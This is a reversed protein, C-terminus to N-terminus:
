EIILKNRYNVPGTVEIFYVGKSLSELNIHHEPGTVRDEVKCVKGTIDMVVLRYNTNNPNPFSITILGSSPNPTVLCTKWDKRYKGVSTLDQCLIYSDARLSDVCWSYEKSVAVLTVDYIGTDSYTYSIPSEGSTVSNGDGFDWTFEFAEQDPTLNNLNVKFPPMNLVTNEASFFLDYDPQQVHVTVTDRGEYNSNYVTIIYQTTSGPSAFPAPVTDVDLGSSPIWLYKIDKNGNYLYQVELRIGQGCEVTRDLGASVNFIGLPDIMVYLIATDSKCGAQTIESVRIEGAGPTAWKITVLNTDEGSLVEGTASWHYASGMTGTLSYKVTDSETVHIPGSIDGPHVQEPQSVTLAGTRVICNNTDRVQVEYTGAALYSYFGFEEWTYGSDISYTVPGGSFINAIVGIYGNEYGYCTHVDYVFVSDINITDTIAILISDYGTRGFADAVSIRYYRGPEPETLISDTSLLPDDWQYTVPYSAYLAVVGVPTVPENFCVPSLTNIELFLRDSGEIFVSDVAKCGNNDTVTVTYVSNGKLIDVTQSDTLEQNDWEFRRPEVGGTAEASARGDSFGYWSIGSSDTVHVYLTDPNELFIRDNGTRGLNDQVSIKYYRNGALGSVISDPTADDDNWLFQYPPTGFFPVAILSGNSDNHCVVPQLVLTEIYLSDPQDLIISDTESCGNDDMVKVHYYLDGSLGTVSSDTSGYPVDWEYHYKGTGGNTHVSAEGDSFGYYSIASDVTIDLIIPDPELIIVSDTVTSDGANTVEVIYKGPALGSIYGTSEGNSWNFSYPETGFLVVLDVTGDNSGNCSIDNSFLLLPVSGVPYIKWTNYQGNEATVRVAMKERVPESAPDSIVKGDVSDLMEVSALSSVTLGELFESVKLTDPVFSILRHEDNVNGYECNIIEREGSLTFTASDGMRLDDIWITASHPNPWYVVEFLFYQTFSISDPDWFIDTLNYHLTKWDSNGNADLGIVQYEGGVKKLHNNNSSLACFQLPLATITEGDRKANEIKIKFECIPNDALNLIYESFNWLMLDIWIEQDMVIKMSSNEQTLEYVPHGDPHTKQDADYRSLNVPSNFDEHFGTITEVQAFILPNFLLFTLISLGASIASKKMTSTLFYIRILVM